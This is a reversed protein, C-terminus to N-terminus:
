RRHTMKQYINTHRPKSHNNSLSHRNQLKDIQGKNDKTFQKTIGTKQQVGCMMNSSNSCNSNSNHTNGAVM